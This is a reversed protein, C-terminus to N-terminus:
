DDDDDDLASNYDYIKKQCWEHMWSGCQDLYHAEVRFTCTANFCNRPKSFPPLCDEEEFVKWVVDKCAMEQYPQCASARYPETWKVSAVVEVFTDHLPKIVMDSGKGGPSPFRQSLPCEFLDKAKEAYDHFKFRKWWSELWRNLTFRTFFDIISVCLVRCAAPDEGFCSPAELCHRGEMDVRQGPAYVEFLFSYDILPADASGEQSLFELDGAVTEQLAAWQARMETSAAPATPNMGLAALTQVLDERAASKAPLPKVDYYTAAGLPQLDATSRSIALGRLQASAPMVVWYRDDHVFALVPINLSTRDLAAEAWCADLSAPQCAANALDAHRALPGVLRDAFEEYEQESVSKALFRGDGSVVFLSGSRSAADEGKVRASSFSRAVEALVQRALPPRAAYPSITGSREDVFGGPARVGALLESNLMGEAMSRIIVAVHAAVEDASEDGFSHGAAIEQCTYADGGADLVCSTGKRCQGDEDCQKGRPIFCEGEENWGVVEDPKGSGIKLCSLAVRIRKGELDTVQEAPCGDSFLWGGGRCPSGAHGAASLQPRLELSTRFGSASGPLAVLFLVHLGGM